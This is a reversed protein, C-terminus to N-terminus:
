PNPCLSRTAPECLLRDLSSQQYRLRLRSALYIARLDAYAAEIDDNLVLYHYSAARSLEVHAERLRRNVSEESETGRGRLRKELERMSPPVIFVLVADDPYAAELQLGGQWDIDFILDRGEGLARDITARTTGYRHTFVHAWEAFEGAEVMRDFAGDTVFTYDVGDQERGRPARTTCSVSFTLRPYERLLRRCLTTKGTGSPSSVVLLVGTPRSPQTMTGGRALTPDTM